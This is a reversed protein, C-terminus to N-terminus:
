GRACVRGTIPAEGIKAPMVGLDRWAMAARDLDQMPSKIAVANM